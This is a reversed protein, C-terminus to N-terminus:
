VVLSLEGIIETVKTAEQHRAVLLNILSDTPVFECEPALDRNRNCPKHISQLGYEEFPGAVTSKGSRVDM